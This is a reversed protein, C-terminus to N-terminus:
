LEYPGKVRMAKLQKPTLRNAARAARTRPHKKFTQKVEPIAVRSYRQTTELSRHGLLRQVYAINAGNAVLHTACTHRWVHPSITRKLVQRAYFRARVDIAQQKMPGHPEIASIWLAREDRSRKTWVARVKQLYERVYNCAKKGMPAVRDKGGKGKNVRVFGSRYDVDHVTLAAMEGSRIGTSYFMELIAKDRIGTPTQTDPADLVARAEGPTLVAKPLRQPLHPLKLGVCPNVLIADTTELHEFFRRLAILRVHVTELTCRPTIETQFDRIHEGTVARADDLGRGALFQEFILLARAHTRVTSASYRRVKLSELYNDIAQRM